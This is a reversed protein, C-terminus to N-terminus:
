PKGGRIMWMIHQHLEAVMREAIETSYGRRRLDERQGDLFDQLPKMEEAFVLLANSMASTDPMPAGKPPM